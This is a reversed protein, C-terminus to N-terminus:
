KAKIWFRIPLSRLEGSLYERQSVGNEARLAPFHASWTPGLAQIVLGRHDPLAFDDHDADPEDAVCKALEPYDSRTLPTGDCPLWGDGPSDASDLAVLVTGVAWDAFRHAAISQQVEITPNYHGERSARDLWKEWPRWVCLLAVVLGVYSPWFMWHSLWAGVIGRAHPIASPETM